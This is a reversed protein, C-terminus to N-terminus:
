NEVEGWLNSGKVSQWFNDCTFVDAVEVGIGFKTCIRGDPSRPLHMFYLRFKAFAVYWAM